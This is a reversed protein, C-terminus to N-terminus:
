RPLRGEVQEMPDTYGPTSAHGPAVLSSVLAEDEATFRYKVAGLYDELQAETRPGAIVSTVLRNNLVWATSFQGATIGRAEAHAKLTRAIILSERRWETQMMRVDNRAARSDSPPATDPDYKGTLVGRALPSYPVVGIGYFACAPLHEVEPVRNVANYYPQCAVPRDIGLRDSISCIEALRWARHNSVAFSRILGDRMLDGMAQVTEELPVELDERHLYYIDIYDTGLRTLSRRAQEMIAPRSSGRESLGPGMVGNVKTAVIWRSRENHIARGVVEESKGSNYTNATDIFNIGADRAMGILRVSTPEDAPGGFMMAGLCLPSVKFNSAGLKRLEM